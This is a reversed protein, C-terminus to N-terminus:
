PGGRRLRKGSSHLLAQGGATLLGGTPPYTVKCECRYTGGRRSVIKIRHSGGDEDEFSEGAVPISSIDEADIEVVSLDRPNFDPVDNVRRYPERDIVATLTASRFTVSEGCASLLADFGASLAASAASM